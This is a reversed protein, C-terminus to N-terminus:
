RRLFVHDIQSEGAYLLHGEPCFWTSKWSYLCGEKETEESNREVKEYSKLCEPCHVRAIGQEILDIAYPELVAQMYRDIKQPVINSLDASKLWIPLAERAAQEGNSDTITLMSRAHDEAWALLKKTDARVECAYRTDGYSPSVIKLLRSARELSALYDETSIQPSHQPRPTRWFSKLITRFMCSM